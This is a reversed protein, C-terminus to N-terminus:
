RDADAALPLVATSTDRTNAAPREVDAVVEAVGRGLEHARGGQAVSDVTLELMADRTRVVGILPRGPREPAASQREPAASQPPRAHALAGLLALACALAATTWSRLLSPRRM